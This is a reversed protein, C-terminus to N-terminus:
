TRTMGTHSWTRGEDSGQLLTMLMDPNCLIHFRDAVQIAYPAGETIGRAYETSRDRTIIEIGPRQRLWDALVEASRNPLM